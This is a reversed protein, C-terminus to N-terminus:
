LNNLVTKYERLQNMRQNFSEKKEIQEKRIAELEEQKQTVIQLSDNHIKERVNAIVDSSIITLNNKFEPMLTEDIYDRIIKKRKPKAITSDTITHIISGVVGDGKGINEGIARDSEKIEGIKDSVKKANEFMNQMKAMRNMAKANSAMSAVDTATDAMDIATKAINAAGVGTATAAAGATAVTAAIAATAMVAYAGIKFIGDNEHGADNININYSLEPMQISSVDVSDFSSLYVEKDTGKTSRAKQTLITNVISMYQNFLISSTTNVMTYAEADYNNSKKTALNELKSSVSDEFQRSIRIEADKIDDAVSDILKDINISIRELETQCKRIAADMEKDSSSAKMMEEIHSLLKEVIDKIRLEDVQRIIDNKTKQVSDILSYMEDLRNESASVVAIQKVPIKCNDSIYKKVSEIDSDSKTDSKTIILFIPRMSMKVTDIFETLSKTIQQNIDVVLFVGDAKPLFKVLAEKHEQVPSSLGPTDVLVINAPIKTSTDSVSVVSVDEMDDNKLESIDSVEVKSGDNKFITATTSSQSFKVEYIVSTTPKSSTELKKSDTLANILTTKGSSFEGVLPLLIDANQQSARFEINKIDSEINSLGLYHSIEILKKFNNM